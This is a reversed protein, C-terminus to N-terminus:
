RTATLKQPLQSALSRAADAHEADVEVDYSDATVGRVSAFDRRGGTLSHAIFGTVAGWFAGFIAGVVLPKWWDNGEVFIGLLWGILVGLMAGSLLGSLAARWKTVRGVVQEVSHLGRGIIRLHQVPFGKDSLFDVLRQADAYDAFTGISNGPRVGAPATFPDIDTM